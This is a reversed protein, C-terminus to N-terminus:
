GLGRGPTGPSLPGSGIKLIRELEGQGVLPSQARELGGGRKCLLDGKGLLYAADPSDLILESNAESDVQLAVRGPLNARILMPVVDRDPRQTALILHVGAARSMSGIKRLLAALAKNSEKDEMLNAFEDIILVIRPILSAQEGELQGVDTKRLAQLQDYRRMTEQECWHLLPLAAEVDCAVPHQALYPSTGSFNFSVRKPDILIFQVQEPTLRRALSALISRLFESKGSGTTGAVLIHCDTPDALNLWHAKGAVDLGIPFIPDREKGAPSQAMVEDLTVLSRRPSEIDLTFWFADSAILPIKNLGLQMKLDMARSCVKKYTTRAGSPKLKLRVFCPGIEVGEPTVKQGWATLKEAALRLKEEAWTSLDTPSSDKRSTPSTEPLV